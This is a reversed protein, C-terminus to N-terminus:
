PSGNSRRETKFVERVPAFNKEAFERMGPKSLDFSQGANLVHRMSGKSVELLSGGPYKGELDEVMERMAEAVEEATVCTDDAYSFQGRVHKGAEGTWLPTKVMGPCICVVKVGEDEDAQAMSKTFGVVAHKSACYLAAAYAGTIGAMSGVILVVCPKNAGLCTRAAIRTLKMPHEANIQLAKYHEAETDYLWSSWRPEFVGAGAIWVDAVASPGFAKSVQSPIANLDSWSSVDCRMFALSDPHASLLTQAEPTLTLDCILVKSNATLALHVFALNIGSGGGTVVAIKNALPFAGVRM